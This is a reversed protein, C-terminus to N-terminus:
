EEKGEKRLKSSGNKKGDIQEKNERMGEKIGENWRKGNM